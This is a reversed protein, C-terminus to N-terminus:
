RGLHQPRHDPCVEFMGLDRQEDALVRSLRVADGTGARRQLLDGAIRVPRQDDDIRATGLGGLDGVDAECNLRPRIRPTQGREDGDDDLFTEDIPRPQGLM